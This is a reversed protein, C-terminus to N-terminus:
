PSEGILDLAPPFARGSRYLLGRRGPRPPNTTGWRAKGGAEGLLPRAALVFIAGAVLFSGGLGIQEIWPPVEVLVALGLALAGVGPPLSL